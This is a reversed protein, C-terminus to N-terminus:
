KWDLINYKALLERSLKMGEDTIVVSKSRRSGQRIYDEEDLESIIDFDYGKWSMDLDSGLHGRGNFRTLYMLLMTLEKVAKEPNTKDM